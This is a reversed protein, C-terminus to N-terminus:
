VKYKNGLILLPKWKRKQFKEQHNSHGSTMLPRLYNLDRNKGHFLQINNYIVQLDLIHLLVLSSLLMFCIQNECKVISIQFCYPLCCIFFCNQIIMYQSFLIKTMSSKKLIISDLLYNLLLKYFFIKPRESKIPCYLFVQCPYAEPIKNLYGELYRWTDTERERKNSSKRITVKKEIEIAIM